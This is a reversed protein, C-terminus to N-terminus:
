AFPTENHFFEVGESFQEQFKDPTIVKSDRGIIELLLKSAPLKSITKSQELNRVEWVTNNEKDIAFATEKKQIYIM